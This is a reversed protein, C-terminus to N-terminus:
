WTILNKDLCIFVMPSYSLAEAMENLKNIARGALQKNKNEIM